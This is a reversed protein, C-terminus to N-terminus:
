NLKETIQRQKKDDVMNNTFLSKCLYYIPNDAPFFDISCLALHKKAGFETM